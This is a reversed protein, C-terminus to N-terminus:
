QEPEDNGTLVFPENAIQAFDTITKGFLHHESGCYPRHIEPFLFDYRLEPLMSVEQVQYDIISIM